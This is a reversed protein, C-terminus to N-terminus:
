ARSLRTLKASGRRSDELKTAEGTARALERQGVMLVIDGIAKDSTDATNMKQEFLVQRFQNGMAEALTDVFSTNKLPVIAEPGAEGIRAITDKRVIGGEALEPIPDIGMTPIQPISPGYITKGTFPNKFTLASEIASTLSNIKNIVANIASIITNKVNAFIIKVKGGIKTFIGEEGILKDVLETAKASVGNKIETWVDGVVKKIAKFTAKFKAVWPATKEEIWTTFKKFTEIFWAKLETWWTEIGTTVTTFVALFTAIWPLTTEGLWTTFTNFIEGFWLMLSGWWLKTNTSVTSWLSGWIEAISKGTEALWLIFSGFVEGFWKNLTTWWLKTITSVTSWLSKWTEAISEGTEALWTEFRSFVEEFWGMLSGWWKSTTRVVGKWMEDTKERAQRGLAKTADMSKKDNAVFKDWMDDTLQRLKKGSARSGESIAKDVGAFFIVGLQAGKGALPVANFAVWELGAYFAKGFIVGVDYALEKMKENVWPKMKETWDSKMQEWMASFKDGTTMDSTLIDNYKQVSEIISDITSSVGSINGEDSAFSNLWDTFGTMGDLTATIAFGALNGALTGLATALDIFKSGMPSNSLTDFLTSLSEKFGEWKLKILPSFGAFAEKASNGFTVFIGAVKGLLEKLKAMPGELDVVRSLDTVPKSMDISGSNMPESSEGTGGLSSDTSSADPGSLTNLEDFGQLNAGLKKGAKALGETEKTAQKAGDAVKNMASATKMTTTSTDKIGLVIFMFKKFGDALFEVATSVALITPMLRQLIPLFAQGISLSANKFGISLTGLAYGTGATVNGYNFSAQELIAYYRIQQQMQFSLKAWSKGNAFREFAKTSEIMAVGVEIGLNDIMETNGLLGSKISDGIEGMSKGTGKAIMDMAKLMDVTMTGAKATDVGMRSIMSSFASGYNVAELKSMGFARAQTLAWDEIIRGNEGLVGNIRGMSAEYTLADKTGKVAIGTMVATIALGALMATKALGKLSASMSKLSAGVKDGGEMGVLIALEGLVIPAPMHEGGEM